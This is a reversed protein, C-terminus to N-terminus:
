RIIAHSLNPHMEITFEVTQGPRPNLTGSRAIPGGGPPQALINVIGTPMATQDLLLTESMGPEVTGLRQVVGGSAAYIDMPQLFNNQVALTVAQGAPQAASQNYAGGTSGCGAAASGIVLAAVLTKLGM